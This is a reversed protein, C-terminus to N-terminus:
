GSYRDAHALLSKSEGGGNTERRGWARETGERKSKGEDGKEGRIREM